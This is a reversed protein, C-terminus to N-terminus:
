STRRRGPGDGSFGATGNGAVAFIAGDGAIQSVRHGEFESVYLNGEADLALGEPAALPTEAAMGGPEPGM